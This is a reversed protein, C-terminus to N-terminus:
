ITNVGRRKREFLHHMLGLSITIITTLMLWYSYKVIAPPSYILEISNIGTEVPIMCLNNPSRTVSIINGNIKAKYGDLWMRPTELYAPKTTKVNAKYPSLSQIGIPLQEPKYEWLEYNACDFENIKPREPLINTIRLTSPKDADTYLPVIHSSSPTTGFSQPPGNQNGMGAGSDPLIYERFLKAGSIQLYGNEGPSLFNLRLAYHTKPEITLSQQLIYYVSNNDNIARLLGSSILRTGGNISASAASDYNSIMVHLNTRDLLRNELIANMYAHSFYPPTSKFYSYPYRTLIINHKAYSNKWDSGNPMTRFIHARLIYAERISWSIAIISMGILVIKLLPRSRSRPTRAVAAALTFVLLSVWIISLRQAAWINTANLIIQPIHGWIWQSIGKVPLIFLIMLLSVISFAVADSNCRKISIILGLFGAFLVAFGPQYNAPGYGKSISSILIQPFIKQAESFISNADTSLNVMEISLASLVPFTGILLYIIVSLSMMKFERGSRHNTILKFIYLISAFLSSWIAIPTHTLWLIGIGTGLLLHGTTDNDVHSRWCGYFVIPIFPATLFTMYQDGIVWPAILSPSLLYILALVLAFNPRNQVMSRITFYATFGSALPTIALIINKIALYDLTQFTVVDVIGGLHQFAPALRLPFFAGNFAYDTQGIWVPFIGSRLQELYDSLMMTYWYADGAGSPKVTYAPWFIWTATTGILIWRTTEFKDAHTEENIKWYIARAGSYMIILTLAMWISATNLRSPKDYHTTQNFVAYCIIVFIISSLIYKKINGAWDKNLGSLWAIMSLAVSTSFLIEPKSITSGQFINYSVLFWATIAIDLVFLSSNFKGCFSFRKLNQIIKEQFYGIM